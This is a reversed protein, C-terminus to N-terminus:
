EASLSKLDQSFDPDQKSRYIKLIRNKEQLQRQQHQEFQRQALEQSAIKREVQEQYFDSAQSQAELINKKWEALWQTKQPHQFLSKPLVPFLKGINLPQMVGMWPLGDTSTGQYWNEFGQSLLFSQGSAKGHYVVSGQLALSRIRVDQSKLFMAMDQIDWAGSSSEVQVKTEEAKKRVLVKGQLLRVRTTSILEIRSQSSLFVDMKQLPLYESSHATDVFCPFTKKLVCMQPRQFVHVWSTSVSSNTSHSVKQDSPEHAQSKQTSIVSHNAFGKHAQFLLSWSIFIRLFIIM